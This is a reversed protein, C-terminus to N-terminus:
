HKISAAVDAVASKLRDDPLVTLAQDSIKGADSGHGTAVLIEILQRVQSVFRDESSKKMMASTDPPSFAPLNTLGQQSRLEAMRAKNAEAQAAMRKQSDLTMTLNQHILDFRWQPDGMHDYCWQYEGKSVLLSEVFFYCQRALDPDKDRFSKFLAYTANNQQLANNISNVEQFLDLFGRGQSFERVDHDRIAILASKAKPFRRGLEVWDPLLPLLSGGTKFQDHFVLCRKLAEDYQGGSILNHVETQAEYPTSAPTGPTLDGPQAARLGTVPNVGGNLGTAADLNGTRASASAPQGTRPDIIGSQGCAPNCCIMTASLLLTTFQILIVPNTKLVKM